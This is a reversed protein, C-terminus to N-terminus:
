LITTLNGCNRLSLGSRTCRERKAYLITEPCIRYWMLVSNGVYLMIGFGGGGYVLLRIILNLVIVFLGSIVSSIMSNMVSVTM